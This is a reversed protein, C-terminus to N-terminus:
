ETYKPVRLRKTASRVSRGDVDEYLTTIEIERGAINKSAWRLGISYGLGMVGRVPSFTDTPYHWDSALSRELSGDPKRDVTYLSIHFMGNRLTGRESDDLLFVRYAIGEPDADGAADLEKLWPKQEYLCFVRKVPSKVTRKPTPRAAVVKSSALNKAPRADHCGGTM